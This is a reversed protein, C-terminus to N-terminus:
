DITICCSRHETFIARDTLWGLFAYTASASYSRMASNRTTMPSFVVLFVTHALYQKMVVYM